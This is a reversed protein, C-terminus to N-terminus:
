PALGSSLRPARRASVFRPRGALDNCDRVDVWHGSAAFVAPVSDGQVDAHECLVLGGDVLVTAAVEAVTRVMRLGDDDTWLALPPDFERVELAVSEYAAMPIYPPNATVVHAQQALDDVADAIDGWRVEVPRSAPSRAAYDAANKAAYDGAQTSLEVAVVRCGPAETAMAVAVAGSGSCLDVALPEAATTTVLRRLEDVAVGAMVETEPRPVFVGPGVALELHRFAARGTIHQLPERRERRALATGFAAVVEDSLCSLAHLRGRPTGTVWALLAEADARGSEVGAATLRDAADALAARVNDTM